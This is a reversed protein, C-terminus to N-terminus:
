SVASLTLMIYVKSFYARKRRIIVSAAKSPMSNINEAQAASDDPRLAAEAAVVFVAGPIRGPVAGLVGGSEVGGESPSPSATGAASSFISRISPPMVVSCFHPCSKKM